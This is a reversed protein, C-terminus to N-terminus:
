EDDVDDDMRDATVDINDFFKERKVVRAIANAHRDRKEVIRAIANFVRNYEEDLQAMEVTLRTHEETVRQKVPAFLRTLMAILDKTERGTDFNLRLLDLVSRAYDADDDDM